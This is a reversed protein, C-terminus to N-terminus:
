DFVFIGRSCVMEVNRSKLVGVGLEEAIKMMNERKEPRIQGGGNLCGSPCAMVEVADYVCKGREHDGSELEVKLKMTLNQINRFGYIFAGRFVIEDGVCVTSEVFDSNRVTRNRKTSNGVFLVFVLRAAPRSLLEMKLLSQLVGGSSMLVDDFATSCMAEMAEWLKEDWEIRPEGIPVPKAILEAIEQTALVCDVDHIGAPDM